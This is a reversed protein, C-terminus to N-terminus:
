QWHMIRNFNGRETTNKVTEDSFQLTRKNKIRQVRTTQLKKKNIVSSQPGKTYRKGDYYASLSCTNKDHNM